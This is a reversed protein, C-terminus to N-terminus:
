RRAFTASLTDQDDDRTDIGVFRTGCTFAVFTDNMLRVRFSLRVQQVAQDGHTFHMHTYYFLSIQSRCVFHQIRGVPAIQGINEGINRDACTGYFVLLVTQSNGADVNRGAHFVRGATIKRNHDVGDNGCLAGVGKNVTGPLYLCASIRQRVGNEATRGVLVAVGHRVIVVLVNLKQQLFVVFCMEYVRSGDDIGVMGVGSLFVLLLDTDDFVNQVCSSAALIDFTEYFTNHDFAIQLRAILFDSASGMNVSFGNGVRTKSPILGFSQNVINSLLALNEGENCFCMHFFGRDCIKGTQM